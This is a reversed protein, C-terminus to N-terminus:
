TISYDKWHSHYHVSADFHLKTKINELNFEKKIFAESGPCDAILPNMYIEARGKRIDVRGRPFYNWQHMKLDKRNAVLSKWTHMHTFSDGRKSNFEKRSVSTGDDSCAIHLALIEANSFDVEEMLDDFRCILLFIGKFLGSYGPMGADM